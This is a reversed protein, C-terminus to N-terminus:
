QKFVRERHYAMYDQHEKVLNISMTDKLGLLAPSEIFKSLRVKGKDTFTIYGLDFAKDLNPLLLLGNYKSLREHNDADRWPKIHSAVLFQPTKYGTLACGQWYKFLKQRFQGQGIRTNVLQSKQTESLTKDEIITQIDQSVQFQTYDCLFERYLGLASSYMGNGNSNRQQYIEVSDLGRIVRDLEDVSEIEFINNRIIGSSVAWDSLVGYISGAYNKVTKQKRGIALAWRKFADIYNFSSTSTPSTYLESEEALVHKKAQAKAATIEASIDDNFKLNKILRGNGKTDPAKMRITAHKPFGNAIFTEIFHGVSWGKYNQSKGDISIDLTKTYSGRKKILYPHVKQKTGKGVEQWFCTLYGDIIYDSYSM